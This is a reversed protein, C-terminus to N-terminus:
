ANESDEQKLFESYRRELLAFIEEPTRLEELTSERGPKDGPIQISGAASAVGSAPPWVFGAAQHAKINEIEQDYDLDNKSAWTQPSLIGADAKTKDAQAEADKDRTALEPLDVQIDCVDLIDSPLLGHSAAHKIAEDIVWLDAERLKSQLAVFSRVVPGEAVMTSAYNGNSADVSFMFEPMHGAAAMARLTQSFGQIMLDMGQAFNTGEYELKDSHDLITGPGYKTQNRSQGTAPDSYNSASIMGAFASATAATGGVHKRTFPIAAAIESKSAINQLAKYSRRVSFRAVWFLPVGRRQNFDARCKIHNIDSAEVPECSGGSPQSHVYYTEPTENDGDVNRIGFLVGDVSFNEGVPNRVQWPEVFRVDTMGDVRRFLRRFCEGDRDHRLITERQREVWRNRQCFDDIFGQLLKVVEPGTAKSDKAVAKFRYGPGVAYNVRNSLGNVIFESYTAMRRCLSQAEFLEQESGFGHWSLAPQGLQGVGPVQLSLFQIGDDFFPERMDVMDFPDGLSEKIEDSKHSEELDRLRRFPNFTEALSGVGGSFAKAYRSSASKLSEILPM